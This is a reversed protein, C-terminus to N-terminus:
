LKTLHNYVADAKQDGRPTSGLVNYVGDPQATKTVEQIGNPDASETNSSRLASSAQLPQRPFAQQQQQAASAPTCQDPLPPTDLDSSQYLDNIHEEFEDDPPNAEASHEEARTKSARRKAVVIVIAIVIIIILVTAGVAVGVAVWPFPEPDDDTICVAVLLTYILTSRVEEETEAGWVSTCVYQTGSQNRLVSPIHLDATDTVDRWSITAPPNGHQATLHSCECTLDSGESVHDPCTTTLTTGPKKITVSEAFQPGDGPQIEVHFYHTMESANLQMTMNCTGRQYERGKIDTFSSLDLHTHPVVGLSVNDPSYYWLCAINGDPEYIKKVHVRGTVTFNSDVVLSTNEPAGSYFTRIRCSASTEGNRRVCNLTQNDGQRVNKVFTLTSASENKSVTVDDTRETCTGNGDCEAIEIVQGSDDALTWNMSHRSAVGDCTIHTWPETESVYVRGETCQPLTYYQVSLQCQDNTANNLKSCTLVAGDKDRDNGATMRLLSFTQNREVSFDDINVDCQPCTENECNGCVAVTHETMNPYTISWYMDQSLEMGECRIRRKSNEYLAVTNNNCAPLRYAPIVKISVSVLTQNDESISCKITSNDNAAVNNVFQLISVATTSDGTRTISYDGNHSHCTCPLHIETACKSCNGITTEPTSPRTVSWYIDKDQGGQCAIPTPQDEVIEICNSAHQCRVPAKIINITSAVCTNNNESSCTITSRNNGTLNDVFFLTSTNGHITINYDTSYTICSCAGGSGCKSCDGIRLKQGGTSPGTLSWYGVPFGLCTINPTEDEVFNFTANESCRMITSSDVVCLYALLICAISFM